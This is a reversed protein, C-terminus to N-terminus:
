TLATFDENDRAPAIQEEPCDHAGYAQNSTIESKQNIM